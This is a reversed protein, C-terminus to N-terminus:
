SNFEELLAPNELLDPGLTLAHGRAQAALRSLADLHEQAHLPEYLVWQSWKVLSALVDRPAMPALATREGLRTFALIRPQVEPIWEGGLAEIPLATKGRLPLPEGGRADLLAIGGKRLAISSHLGAIAIGDPRPVLFGIDDTAVQWRRSAMLATTTSKGTGSSGAFLWGRGSPDSLAAGHVHYWGLRRLLFVLVVLLFSREGEELRPIAAPSLWLLGEPREPHIEAAAPCREWVIRVTGTPPGAQIAVTPQRLMQRADPGFPPTESVVVSISFRGPWPLRSGDLWATLAGRAAADACDLDYGPVGRRHGFPRRRLLLEPTPPFTGISSDM